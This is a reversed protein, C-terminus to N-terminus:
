LHAQTGLISSSTPIKDAYKRDFIQYEEWNACRLAAEAKEKRGTDWLWRAEHEILPDKHKLHAPYRKSFEKEKSEEAIRAWCDRCISKNNIKGNKDYKKGMYITGCKSCTKEVKEKNTGIEDQCKPCYIVHEPANARLMRKCKKCKRLM